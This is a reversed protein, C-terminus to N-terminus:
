RTLANVRGTFSRASLPTTGCFQATGRPLLLKWKNSRANIFAFLAGCTLDQQTVDQAPSALGDIQRRMDVPARHLYVQEIDREAPLM